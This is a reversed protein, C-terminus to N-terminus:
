NCAYLVLSINHKIYQVTWHLVATPQTVPLGSRRYLDWLKIKRYLQMITSDIFTAILHKHRACSKHTNTNNSNVLLGQVTTPSGAYLSCHGKWWSDPPPHLFSSAPWQNPNTSQTRKLARVSIASHCSPCEAWLFDTGSIGLLATGSCISSSRLPVAWGLNM